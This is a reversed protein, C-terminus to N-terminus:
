HLTKNNLKKKQKKETFHVKSNYFSLKSVIFNTTM